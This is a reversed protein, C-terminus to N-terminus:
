QKVLMFEGGEHGANSLYGLRPTQQAHAVVPQRVESFLTTADLISGNRRLVELLAKAFISHKGGGVDSVPELGGSAVVIRARKKLMRKMYAPDLLQAASGRTATDMTLTGSYCSDAIVLVHRADIATLTDTIDANSIWNASNRLEADVPLWYGRGSKEDLTGHGAYYIILNDEATLNSRLKAFAAFVDSRRGDLLLTVEFGYETKLVDAIARADAVATELPPLYQYANSGIILAHYRGFDLGAVSIARPEPALGATQQAPAPPSTPAISDTAAAPSPAAPTQQANAEGPPPYQGTLSLRCDRKGRKGEGVLEKGSIKADYWAEGARSESRYTGHLTLSGDPEVDGSMQDSENSLTVKGGTIEGSISRTFGESVQGHNRVSDCDLHGSWTSDPVEAAAAAIAQILLVGTMIALFPRLMCILVPGVRLRL